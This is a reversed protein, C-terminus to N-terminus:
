STSGPSIVLPIPSSPFLFSILCVHTSSRPHLITLLIEGHPKGPAETVFFEGPRHLHHLLHSSSGRTQFIGQLFHRAVRVLIRAKSTEQVSSGPLSCVVSAASSRSTPRACGHMKSEWRTVRPETRGSAEATPKRQLTTETLAHPSSCKVTIIQFECTEQAPMFAFEPLPLAVKLVQTNATPVSFEM